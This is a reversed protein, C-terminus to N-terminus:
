SVLWWTHMDTIGSPGYTLSGLLEALAAGRPGNPRRKLANFVMAGAPHELLRFLGAIAPLHGESLVAMDYTTISPDDDRLPKM